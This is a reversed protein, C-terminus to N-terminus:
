ELFVVQPTSVCCVFWSGSKSAGGRGTIARTGMELQGMTDKDGLNALSNRWIKRNKEALLFSHIGWKQQTSDVFDVCQKTPTRWGRRRTMLTEVAEVPGRYIASPIRSTTGSTPCPRHPYTSSHQHHHDDPFPDMTSSYITHWPDWWYVGKINAYM